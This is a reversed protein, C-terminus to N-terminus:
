KRGDQNELGAPPDVGGVAAIRRMVEASGARYGDKGKSSSLGIDAMTFSRGFRVRLRRSFIQLRLKSSGSIYVPVVPINYKLALMGVGSKPSHLRGDLFRTGEPFIIVGNGGELVEGLRTLATRDYGSRRVPISNYYRVLPGLIFNDFLERKAAYFVERPCTSGIIPPDFWSQHNSALIFPGSEPVNERGAVKLGCLVKFISRIFIQSL